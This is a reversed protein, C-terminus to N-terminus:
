HSEVSEDIELHKLQVFDYTKLAFEINKDRSADIPMLRHQIGLKNVKFIPTENGSKRISRRKRLNIRRTREM